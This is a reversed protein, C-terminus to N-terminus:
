VTELYARLLPETATIDGHSRIGAAADDTMSGYAVMKQKVITAGGDDELGFSQEIDVAGGLHSLMSVLKPPDFWTVTGYLKGAGDGWDEFVQGGIREEFVVARVRDGGYTHPYWKAQEVTLAKFVRERSAKLRIENEVTIVRYSEMSEGELTRKMALLAAASEDAFRGVWREYVERLPVANVHNLRERGQRRVVVLGAGVLVKLHQMAAFRSMGALSATVQSTTAPGARLRDLIARRHPSALARFVAEEGQDDAM